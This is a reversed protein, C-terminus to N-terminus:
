IPPQRRAASDRPRGHSSDTLQWAVRDRAGKPPRLERQASRRDRWETGRWKQSPSAGASGFAQGAVRNREGQSPSAGASGFAQGAVRDWPEAPAEGERPDSGVARCSGRGGSSRIGRSPLLRARGLIPDRPEAPAEGEWPHSGEARCSGRGGSSRIGRSPLLRARGLIPDRPEAPAEGEWPHSGEARRSGRGGLSPFMATGPPVSCCNLAGRWGRVGTTRVPVPVVVTIVVCTKTEGACCLHTEASRFETIGTIVSALGTCDM